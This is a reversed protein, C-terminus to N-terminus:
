DGKDEALLEAGPFAETLKDVHTRNDPPADVLDRPDISEEADASAPAPPAAKTRPTSSARSPATAVAARPAVEDVTLVLSVSKGFHEELVREVDPRYEECKAVHAPNSVAFVAGDDSVEVFRGTSYRAKAARPIKALLEDGWALTLDDRSPM